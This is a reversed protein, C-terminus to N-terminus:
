ELVMNNLTDFDVRDVIYHKEVLTQTEGKKSMDKDGGKM